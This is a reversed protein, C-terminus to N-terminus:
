EMIRSHCKKSKFLFECFELLIDTCLWFFPPLNLAYGKNVRLATKTGTVKKDMCPRRIEKQDAAPACFAVENRKIELKCNGSSLISKIEVNNPCPARLTKSNGCPYSGKKGGSKKEDGKQGLIRVKTCIHNKRLM